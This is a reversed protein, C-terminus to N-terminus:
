NEESPSAITGLDYSVELTEIGVAFLSTGTAVLDPSRLQILVGNAPALVNTSKFLDLATLEGIKENVQVQSMLQATPRWIGAHDSFAVRRMFTPAPSQNPEGDIIGVVKCVEILGDAIKQLAGPLLSLARSNEIAFGPVGSRILSALLSGSYKVEESSSLDMAWITTPSFAAIGRQIKRDLAADGSPIFIAMALTDMEFEHLDIVFSCNSLYAYLTHAIRETLSGDAKGKGIRNLDYYDLLSVRTRTSQAFPNASTIISISGNLSHNNTLTRMLERCILLSVTEDGHVGCSIALHPKGTGVTIIPIQISLSSVQGIALEVIEPKLSM